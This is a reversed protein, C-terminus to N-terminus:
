PTIRVTVSGNSLRAGPVIEGAALAKRIAAKDPEPNIRIFSAPLEGPDTTEVSAPTRVLSM